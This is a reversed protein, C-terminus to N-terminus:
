ICGVETIKFVPYIGGTKLYFINLVITYETKPEQTVNHNSVFKWSIIRGEAKKYWTMGKAKM